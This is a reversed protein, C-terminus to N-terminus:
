LKVSSNQKIYAAYHYAGFPNTKADQKQWGADRPIRIIHSAVTAKHPKPLKRYLSSSAVWTRKGIPIKIGDTKEKCLYRATRYFSDETSLLLPTAEKIFGGGWLYKVEDCTFDTDRLVVHIHYRKDGHQGEICYVYDFPKKKYRKAANLFNRWSKRVGDFTPPLHGDAFTLVYHTAPNMLALFLECRDVPTRRFLSGQLMKFIENKEKQIVPSDEKDKRPRRYRVEKTLPGARQRICVWQQDSPM